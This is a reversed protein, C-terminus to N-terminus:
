EPFPQMHPLESTSVPNETLLSLLVLSSQWTINNYCCRLPCWYTWPLLLRHFSGTIYLEQSWTDPKLNRQYGMVVFAALHFPTHDSSESVSM